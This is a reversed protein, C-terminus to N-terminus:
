KHRISASFLPPLYRSFAEDFQEREFGKPTDYGIRVNKSTIGYGKLRKAIQRPSVPRGRNYTNWPAEDDACLAAILDATGIKDIKKTDFVTKIDTLLENGIGHELEDANSLKLAANHAREIWERGATGAIALLPEWNDQQRDNLSEPLVPRAQRV